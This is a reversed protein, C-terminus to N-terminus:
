LDMRVMYSGGGEDQPSRHALGGEAQVPKTEQAPAASPAPKSQVAPQTKKMQEQRAKALIEGVINRQGERREKQLQEQSAEVPGWHRSPKELPIHKREAQQSEQAQKPLEVLPELRGILDETQAEKKGQLYGGFTLLIASTFAVVMGFGSEKLTINVGFKPHFYISNVLLLLFLSEIGVFLNFISEKVPLKPQRRELLHTIYVGFAGLSLMLIVIGVFSAPGTVGLFMDGIKYADIDSYWPMVTSIALLFSGIGILKLHVPSAQLNQIIKSINM